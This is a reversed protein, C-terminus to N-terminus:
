WAIKYKNEKIERFYNSLLYCQTLTWYYVIIGSVLVVIIKSVVEKMRVQILKLACWDINM